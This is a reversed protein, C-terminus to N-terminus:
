LGDRQIECNSVNLSVRIKSLVTYKFGTTIIGTTATYWFSSLLIYDRPSFKSDLFVFDTSLNIFNM